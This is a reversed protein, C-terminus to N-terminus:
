EDIGHQYENTATITEAPGVYSRIAPEVPYLLERVRLGLWALPTPPVEIIDGEQLLVNQSVDGSRVMNELDVIIVKRGQEDPSPRVVRIRSRWALFTPQSEALARLLTDRGTYYKPGPRHVQGFVYYHKSRYGIVETAVEPEVYFRSLQERIKGSIEHTSLGAVDIEGVLRLVLKGDPRVTETAGDIEPAGPAHITLQDPPHVRYDGSSVAADHARLFAVLEGHRDGCGTAGGLLCLGVLGCALPRTSERTVIPMFPAAPHKSM